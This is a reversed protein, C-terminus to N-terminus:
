VDGTLTIRSSTIIYILFCTLLLAGLMQSDRAKTFYAIMFVIASGFLVTFTRPIRRLVVRGFHVFRVHSVLFFSTLLITGWVIWRNEVFLCMGLAVMAGAPSPLGKFFGPPISKDHKDHALFRWLRFGISLSYLAGFAFSPLSGGGKLFILLGPCLGFSILDAIDDFWPGFKTGGHKEAARGDLLDFIQGTLITIAVYVYLGQFVLIIGVLGCLLNLSSLIDAYFRNSITKFVSSSISLVICVYLIHNAIKPIPLGDDLLALYIILFFCLIAKVKGFNNAAVSFTTFRKILYRVLFQGCIEITLLFYVSPISLLGHHAFFVFPPLYTLKDCLPDLEEGFPSALDCSRAILGDIGDMFASLTFLLIAWTHQEFEFYLVTSALGIIVRWICISNPHFYWSRGLYDRGKPNKLAIYFGLYVLASLAVAIIILIIRNL